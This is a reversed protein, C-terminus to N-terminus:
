SKLELEKGTLAFYLNQLQHVYAIHPYKPCKFRIGKGGKPTRRCWKLKDRNIKLYYSSGYYESLGLRILWEETIPIPKIDACENEQLKYIDFADLQYVKTTKFNDKTLNIYNGVRLERVEM